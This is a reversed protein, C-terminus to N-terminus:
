SKKAASKKAAAKKVPKSDYGNRDEEASPATRNAEEEAKADAEAQVEATDPAETKGKGFAKDAVEQPVVFKGEATRVVAQDLGLDEAAALLLTATEQNNASYNIDVDTM